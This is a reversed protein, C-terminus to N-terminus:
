VVLVVKSIFGNFYKHLLCAWLCGCGRLAGGAVDGTPLLTPGPPPLRTARLFSLLTVQEWACM